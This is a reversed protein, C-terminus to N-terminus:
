VCRKQTHYSILMYIGVVILIPPWVSVDQPIWGQQKALLFLGFALFFWGWFSTGTGCCANTYIKFPTAPIKDAKKKAM